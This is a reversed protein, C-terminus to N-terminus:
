DDLMIIDAHDKAADCGDGGMAFGVNAESLARADGLGEGTAGVVAKSARMAACFMFKCEPTARYVFRVYERIQIFAQKSAQDRFIYTVGRGEVKDETRVMLQRLQGLLQDGSVIDNGDVNDERM